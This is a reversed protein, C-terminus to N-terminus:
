EKWRASSLRQKCVAGRAWHAGLRRQRGGARRYKVASRLPRRCQSSLRAAGRLASRALLRCAPM